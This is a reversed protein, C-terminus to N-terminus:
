PPKVPQGPHEAIRVARRDTSCEAVLKRDARHSTTGAILAADDPAPV